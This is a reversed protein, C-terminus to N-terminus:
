HVMVADAISLIKEVQRETEGEEFEDISMKDIEGRLFKGIEEKNHDTADIRVCHEVMEPTKEIYIIQNDVQVFVGNIAGKEGEYLVECEDDGHYVRYFFGSMDYIEGPCYCDEELYREMDPIDKLKM